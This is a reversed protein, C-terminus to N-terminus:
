QLSSLSTTGHNDGTSRLKCLETVVCSCVPSRDHYELPAQKTDGQPWWLFPLFYIDKESVRVQHFMDAM